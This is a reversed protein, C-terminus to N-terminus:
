QVLLQFLVRFVIKPGMRSKFGHGRHYMDLPERGFNNLNSIFAHLKAVASIVRLSVNESVPGIWTLRQHRFGRM